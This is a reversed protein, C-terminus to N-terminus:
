LSASCTSLIELLSCSISYYSVKVRIKSLDISTNGYDMTSMRTGDDTYRGTGALPARAQDNLSSLLKSSLTPGRADTQGIRQSPTRSPPINPSAGLMTNNAWAAVRFAGAGEGGGSNLTKAPVDPPMEDGPQEYLGLYDDYFETVGRPKRESSVRPVDITAARVPERPPRQIQPVSPRREM